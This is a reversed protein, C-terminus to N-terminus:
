RTYYHRVIFRKSLYSKFSKSKYIRWTLGLRLRAKRKGDRQDKELERISSYVFVRFIM